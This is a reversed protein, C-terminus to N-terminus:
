KQRHKNRKFASYIEYNSNPFRASVTSIEGEGRVEGDSPEPQAGGRPKKQQFFVAGANSNWRIDSVVVWEFCLLTSRAPRQPTKQNINSCKKLLVGLLSALGATARFGRWGAFFNEECNKIQA